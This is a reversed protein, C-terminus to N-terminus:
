GAREVVIRNGHSEVVRVSAGQEIFDGRTVVDVRRDGFEAPGSPRLDSGAVGRQGMLDVSSDSASFGAARSTTTELILRRFLPVNPLFRSLLAAGIGTGVISAALKTLPMELDPMSPWLPGGPIHRVMAMMLAALMLLIGAFGVAGFGPIFLLEVALLVAGLLFLLVDENGALGAIHHGWFFIGLCCIGLIGPLGFGPTKIEVWIGLLGGILFLPALATIFRAFRESSTVELNVVRAHGLNEKELMAQLDRVTGESLLPRPPDGVLRGAEQDTLTLLQGQPCIVEEGIKFEMERRVMAEALETNHGGQEAAARVLAAVGSVAKEQVDEPLPQVGGFPTMMIPMADGIVSGPAMYIKRTALSIIAGASFADKEVFAYTPVKINQITHVIERATNVTGGPTDMVFVIADAGEKEAEAVGRRIVYLLAAEIPGRIPLTYVVPQKAPAEAAAPPSNSLAPAAEQGHASLLSAGLLVGFGIRSLRTSNM